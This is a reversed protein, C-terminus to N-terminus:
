QLIERRIRSSEPLVALLQGLLHSDQAGIHILQLRSQTLLIGGQRGHAALQLPKPIFGGTLDLPLMLYLDPVLLDLPQARHQARLSLM